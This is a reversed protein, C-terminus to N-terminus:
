LGQEQYTGFGSLSLNLTYDGPPLNPFRYEGNTGCTATATGSPLAPSTLTATTGPLVAGSEDRVTGIISGTLIQAHVTAAIALLGVALVWRAARMEGERAGSLSGRESRRVVVRWPASGRRPCHVASSM